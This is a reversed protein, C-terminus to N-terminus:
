ASPAYTYPQKATIQSTTIPPHQSCPEVEEETASLITKRNSKVPSKKCKSDNSTLFGSHKFHKGLLNIYFPLAKTLSCMSQSGPPNAMKLGYITKESHPLM